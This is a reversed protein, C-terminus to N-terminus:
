SYHGLLEYIKNVTRWNRATAAVGLTREVKAALVSRGIGAPAYLYFLDDQLQYQEEPARLAEMASLDPHDPSSALFYVHMTRPNADAQPFPNNTVVSDWKEASIFVIRPRFGYQSEIADTVSDAMADPCFADETRFTVNGSQIYTRVDKLGFGELIAVLGRMPLSHRGGVNIGRLLAVWVCMTILGLGRVTSGHCGVICAPYLM